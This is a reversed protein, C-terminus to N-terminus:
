NELVKEIDKNEEIQKVKEQLLRLIELPMDLPFLHILAEAIELANFGNANTAFYNANYKLLMKVWKAKFTAISQILLTNGEAHEDKVETNARAKLLFKALKKNNFRFTELLPNLHLEDMEDIDVKGSKILIRAINNYPKQACIRLVESLLKNHVIRKLENLLLDKLLYFKKCVNTTTKIFQLSYKIGHYILSTPFEDVIQEIELILINAIIEQPLKTMELSICIEEDVIELDNNEDVVIKLTKSPDFKIINDDFLSPIMPADLLWIDRIKMLMNNNTLTKLLCKAFEKRDGEFQDIAKQINAELDSLLACENQEIKKAKKMAIKQLTQKDYDKSEASDTPKESKQKEMTNSTCAFLLLSFLSLKLITKM